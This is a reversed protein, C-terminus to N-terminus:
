ENFQGNHPQSASSGTDRGLQGNGPRDADPGSSAVPASTNCPEAPPDPLAFAEVVDALTGAEPLLGACDARTGRLPNALSVVRYRPLSWRFPGPLAFQVFDWDVRDVEEPRALRLLTGRLWARTNPPPEALFRHIRSEPLLREALGRKELSWFLGEAPDLSSYLQDLYCLEPSAWTLDPREQLTQQLMSWKLVWDLRPALAAYSRRELKALTDAWLRLIAPADPVIGECGGSDVFRAAEELFRLQLEVATLHEGVLTPLRTQLSPDHSWRVTAAVPDQLLLRPNIHESEILALIIQLVGVKLFAAVQCLNHDYFIVHLRAMEGAVPDPAARRWRGCLPEDRSNVLPRNFTTQLGVLVELHDARQSLQFSVPPRGNESGVKGLGTFIISSAQYAALYLQDYLRRHFLNEWAARSVLFNLHSGYSNGRGDSNNALVQIKQGDPLKANAAVAAQHALLYVARCCALHDYASLVEPICAELHNLDIYFCAGNELFKRGWDQSHADSAAASSWATGTPAFSAPAHGAWGQAWSGSGTRGWAESAIGAIERLLLRSARYGTGGPHTVGLIFNGLEMDAGCVKPQPGSHSPDTQAPSFPPLPDM